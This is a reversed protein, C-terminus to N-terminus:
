YELVFRVRRGKKTLWINLPVYLEELWITGLKRLRTLYHAGYMGHFMKAFVKSVRSYVYNLYKYSEKNRTKECYKYKNKFNSAALYRSSLYIFMKIEDFLEFGLKTDNDDKPIESIKDRIEIIKEFRKVMDLFTPEVKFSNSIQNVRYCASFETWAHFGIETIFDDYSRYKPCNTKYSTKKINVNYADVAHWLEHCIVLDLHDDKNTIEIEDLLGESIQIKYKRKVRTFSGFFITNKEVVEVIIDFNIKMIECNEIFLELIKDKYKLFKDENIGGNYVVLKM